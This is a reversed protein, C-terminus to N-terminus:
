KMRMAKSPAIKAVLYSPILLASLCIILTLVNLGIISLVSISVPVADLYYIKPDLPILQFNAQLLCIGVGIINGWVMGKLILKGFHVLFVKRLQWNTAGMAKFVGIFSSRLLIMVLLASGMNIIGIVLMLLLVIAMNIDLFSLWVFLDRQNDKISKVQVTQSFNPNFVVAKQVSRKVKELAEFDSIM